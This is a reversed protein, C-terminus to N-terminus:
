KSLLELARVYRLRHDRRPFREGQEWHILTQRSVGLAEAFEAQTVGARERISRCEAPTPLRSRVSARQALADIADM